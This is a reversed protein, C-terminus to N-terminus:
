DEMFRFGPHELLFLLKEEPSKFEIIPMRKDHIFFCHECLKGNPLWSKYEGHFIRNGISDLYYTYERRSTKYTLLEM